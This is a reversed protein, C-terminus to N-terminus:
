EFDELVDLLQSNGIVQMGQKFKEIDEQPLYMTQIETEQKLTELGDEDITYVALVGNNERIIYHEPCFGENEKYITIQSSTFEEINWDSYKKALEEKTCNILNEDVPIENRIIHDCDKFYQKEIIVSNPSIREELSSTSILEDSLKNQNYIQALKAGDQINSDKTHQMNYVYIGLIVSIALLIIAISGIIFGKKM